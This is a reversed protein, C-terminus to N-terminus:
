KIKKNKQTSKDTKKKKKKLPRYILITRGLIQAVDTKPIQDLEEAIKNCEDPCTDLLKVKLLDTTNFAQNIFDVIKETFGEKGIIIKAKLQNGRARLERKQKGIM